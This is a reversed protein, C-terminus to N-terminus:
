QIKVLVTATAYVRGATATGKPLKKLVARYPIRYLTHNAVPSGIVQANQTLSYWGASNGSPYNIASYCYGSCGTGFTAPFTGTLGPQGVFNMTTNNAPNTLYIGVNQALSPDQGYQNSILASVGTSSNVLGLTQAADYSSSSVQIGIANQGTSTGRQANNHCQVQVEFDASVEGGDNLAQTNTKPFNVVPTTFTTLCSNSPPSMSLANYLTYGIGNDAGWFAFNTTHSEGIEDHGFTVPQPGIGNTKNSLQIYAAPGLYSYIGSSLWPKVVGTNTEPNTQIRILEAQLNPIHKLRICIKGVACGNAGSGTEYNVPIDQYYQTVVKGAMTLRLGLLQAATYFVGSQGGADTAAVETRGGYFDDGNTSVLFTIYNQDGEDCTWLISESNANRARFETPAVVTSAIVSGLPQIAQNMLQVNGFRIKAASWDDTELYQPSRNMTCQAWGQSSVLLILLSVFSLVIRKFHSQLGTHLLFM